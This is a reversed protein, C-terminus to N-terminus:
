QHKGYQTFRKPDEKLMLKYVDINLVLWAKVSKNDHRQENDIKLDFQKFQPIFPKFWNQFVLTSETSIDYYTFCQLYQQDLDYKVMRTYMYNDDFGFSNFGTIIQPQYDSM